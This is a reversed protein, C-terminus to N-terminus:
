NCPPEGEEKDFTLTQSPESRASVQVSDVREDNDDEESLSSTMVYDAPNGQDGGGRLRDRLEANDKALSQATMDKKDTFTNVQAVQDGPKDDEDSSSSISESQREQDQDNDNDPM